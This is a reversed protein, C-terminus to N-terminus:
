KSAAADLGMQWFDSELRTAESFLCKLQPYRAETMVVKTWGVSGVLNANRHIDRVHIAKFRKWKNM